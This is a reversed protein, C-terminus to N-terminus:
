GKASKTVRKQWGDGRCSRERSRRKKLGKRSWWWVVTLMVVWEEEEEEKAQRVKGKMDKVEYEEQEEGAGKGGDSM